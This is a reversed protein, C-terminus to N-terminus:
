IISKDPDTIYRNRAKGYDSEDLALSMLDIGLKKELVAIVRVNGIKGSRVDRKIRAILKDSIPPTITDLLDIVTKTNEDYLVKMEDITLDHKYYYESMGLKQIAEDNCPILWRQSFYRKHNMHMMKLQFYTMEQMDGVEEWVFSDLTKPDSYYVRPVLSKVEIITENTLKM